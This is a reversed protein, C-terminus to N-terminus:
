FEWVMKLLIRDSDTLGCIVLDETLFECDPFEESWPMHLPEFHASPLNDSVWQSLEECPMVHYVHACNTWDRVSYTLCHPVVVRM